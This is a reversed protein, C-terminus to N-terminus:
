GIRDILCANVKIFDKKIAFRNIMGLIKNM